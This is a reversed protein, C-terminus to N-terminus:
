ETTTATTTCHEIGQVHEITVGVDPERLRMAVTANNMAAKSPHEVIVSHWGQAGELRFVKVSHAPALSTNSGIASGEKNLVDIPHGNDSQYARITATANSVKSSILIQATYGRGTTGPVGILRHEYTCTQSAPGPNEPDTPTEPETPTEPDTPTEPETPTETESSTTITTTAYHGYYEYRVYVYYTTDPEVGFGPVSRFINVSTDATTRPVCDGSRHDYSNCRGEPGEPDPNRDDEPSTTGAPSKLLYIWFEPAPGIREAHAHGHDWSLTVAPCHTVTDVVTCFASHSSPWGPRAVQQRYSARLNRPAEPAHIRSPDGRERPTLQSHAFAFGPALLGAVIGAFLCGAAVKRVIRKM